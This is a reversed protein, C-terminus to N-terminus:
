GGAKDLRTVKGFSITAGPYARAINGKAANVGEARTVHQIPSNNVTCNVEFRAMRPEQANHTPTKAARSVQVHLPVYTM